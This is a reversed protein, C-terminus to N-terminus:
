EALKVRPHSKRFRWCRIMFNDLHDGRLAERLDANHLGLIIAAGSKTVVHRDADYAAVALGCRCSTGPALDVARVDGCSPCFLLKM